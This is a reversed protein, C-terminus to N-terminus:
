PCAPWVEYTMTNGVTGVLLLWPPVGIRERDARLEYLAFLYSDLIAATRRDLGANHAAAAPHEWVQDYATPPDLWTFTLEFGRQAAAEIAAEFPHDEGVRAFIAVLDARETATAIAPRQARGAEHDTIDM